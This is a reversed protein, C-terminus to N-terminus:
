GPGAGTGTLRSRQQGRATRLRERVDGARPDDLDDLIATAAQWAAEAAPGDGGDRAVDGLSILTDAENYRDGFQRYLLAAQQYFCASAGPDHLQAHIYGLSHYTHALSKHNAMEIVALADTCYRLAQELDGALAHGYGLSNLAIGEGVRHGARRYLDLAQRSHGTMEGFREQRGRLIALSIHTSAQGVADQRGACLQLARQLHQDAGSLDGLQFEAQALQRLAQGEAARDGLRGAAALATRQTAALDTWYGQVALYNVLSWALQWAHVDLGAAAAGPVMRVLVPQEAGLWAQARQRDPVPTLTVGGAPPTISIADRDPEMRRDAAFTTGLYHDLLRAQASRRQDPSELVSLEGAYARLLDHMVFRGPAQEAALGAVTLQVLLPRTRAPPLAALSAVADVSIDPGPHLGLLRFMRAANPALSRYSWSFVTRLDSAPEDSVIVDLAGVARRLEGALEGLAYRPHTAARAAVLALALPLCACRSIIDSVAEGHEDVRDAGLRQVLLQRAEARSLVELRVPQAADTAVLGVMPNRSTIVVRAEPGGPLLPRVQDADRANDMVVLIRRASTLTRYLGTREALSGPIRQAPVGLASLLVRVADAPAVPPGSPDFGGLNLYLQGDPFAKRNRHGWHLTLASKGTGAAGSVVATTLAAAPGAILQDLARLHEARGVFFPVDPPLWTLYPSEPQPVPDPAAGALADRLLGREQPGLDLGDTLRQVTARRPQRIRGTELYRLTRVSLGTREAMEEQTLRLRTRLERLRDGFSPGSGPALDEHGHDM